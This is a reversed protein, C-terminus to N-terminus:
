YTVIAAIGVGVTVALWAFFLGPSTHTVIVYVGLGCLLAVAFFATAVWAQAQTSPAPPVSGTLDVLVFFVVPAGFVFVIMPLVLALLHGWWPVRRKPLSANQGYGPPYELPSQRPDHM